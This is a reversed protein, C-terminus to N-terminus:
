LSHMLTDNLFSFLSLQVRCANLRVQCSNFQRKTSFQSTHTALNSMPRGTKMRGEVQLFVSACCPLFNVRLLYWSFQCTEIVSLTPKVGASRSLHDDLNLLSCYKSWYNNSNVNLYLQSLLFRKLLSKCTLISPYSKERTSYHM